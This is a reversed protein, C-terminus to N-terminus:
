DRKQTGVKHLSLSLSNTKKKKKRKVTNEVQSHMYKIM